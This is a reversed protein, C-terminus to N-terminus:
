FALLLFKYQSRSACHPFRPPYCIRVQGSRRCVFVSKVYDAINWISLANAWNSLAIIWSCNLTPFVSPNGCILLPSAPRSKKRESRRGLDVPAPFLQNMRADQACQGGIFRGVKALSITYLREQFDDLNSGRRPRVGDVGQPLGVSTTVGQPTELPWVRM